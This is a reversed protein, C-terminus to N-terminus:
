VMCRHCLSCFYKCTCPQSYQRPNGRRRPYNIRRGIISGSQVHSVIYRILKKDKVKEQLMRTLIKRNITGFFDALDIDLVSEVENNYLHQRLKRIADHCGIGRRFGYSCELFIPDYISELIKQMMKQCLKDEFNSIGLSRTKGVSGEKPIKVELINSPIYAMNKLKGVLEQINETLRLGYKAKDVGDVGIAKKADLEHYCVALADENFLHMLNNFSKSRDLSSLWAIRKLKTETTVQYDTTIM